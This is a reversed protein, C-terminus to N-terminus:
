NAYKKRRYFSFLMGFIVVLVIPMVVNIIQWKLRHETIEVQDLIRLKLSKTRASMLNNDDLLYEIVNIIFQQNGKYDVNNWKNFGIPSLQNTNPNYLNKIIDSDTIVVQSTVPSKEKFAVNLRKLGENMEETVRNKFFSEFEGKLLVAAPLYPKNYAETKVDARLVEFTLRMPYRQRRAYQSSTLLTTYEIGNKGDLIDITSPFSSSVRDINKVIASEQNGRLLPSYVWPFLKTQEEGGRSGIVQPIQTCDLDLILDSNVRIGYKFLMPDLGTELKKPVYIKNRNLSDLNLAFQDILWIIKGGNMIYQDLKFQSKSSVNQKPGAVIVIDVEPNIVVLSDLTFYEVMMTQGLVSALRATQSEILEGNGQTFAVVPTRKRSVKEIGSVLKYELQTMSKNINEAESEGRVQPELLDIPVKITGKKIIAYPYIFKEVKQDNEVIMLNVPNIGDESLNRRIRNIDTISGDNLNISKYEINPNISKFEKLIELTRQRLQTLGSTMNGQLLVDITMVDDVNQLMEATSEELTFRRDETLDVYTYFTSSLLNVFVTIGIFILTQILVKTPRKMSKM